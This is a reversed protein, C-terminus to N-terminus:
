ENDDHYDATDEVSTEAPPDMEIKDLFPILFVM